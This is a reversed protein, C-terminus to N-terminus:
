WVSSRSRPSSGTFRTVAALAPTFWGRRSQRARKVVGLLVRVIPDFGVVASELRSETRHASKFAVMRSAHDHATVGEHLVDTAAVVFEPDVRAGMPADSGSEGFEGSDDLAGRVPGGSLGM